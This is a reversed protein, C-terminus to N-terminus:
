CLGMFLGDVLLSRMEPDPEWSEDQKLEEFLGQISYNETGREMKEDAIMGEGDM